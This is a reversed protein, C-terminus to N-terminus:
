RHREETITRDQWRYTSWDNGQNDSGITRGQWESERSIYGHGDDCTKIGQWVSCVLVIAVFPNIV